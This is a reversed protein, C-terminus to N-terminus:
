YYQEIKTITVNKIETVYYLTEANDLFGTFSDSFAFKISNTSPSQVAVYLPYDIPLYTSSQDSYVMYEGTMSFGVGCNLNLGNIPVTVNYSDSTYNNYNEMYVNLIISGTIKTTIANSVVGNFSTLGNAQSLKSSGEWVTHWSKDVVATTVINTNNTVTVTAGNTCASGNVTSTSIKYGSSASFSVTLVDGYYITAANALVGTSAHENPSSTRTVTVTSNSGASISLTFPKGWVPTNNYKLVTLDTGNYTIKSLNSGNFKISM